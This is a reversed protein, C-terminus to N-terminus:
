DFSGHGYPFRRDLRVIDKRRDGSTSSKVAYDMIDQFASVKIYEIKKRKRKWDAKAAIGAFKLIHERKRGPKKIFAFVPGGSIGDINYDYSGNLECSGIPSPKAEAVHSSWGDLGVIYTGDENSDDSPYGMVYLFDINDFDGVINNTTIRFFRHLIAANIDDRFRSLSKTFDCIVIDTHDSENEKYFFYSDAEIYYTTYLLSGNKGIEGVDFIICINELDDLQNEVQHRTLIALKRGKYEIGTMSGRKTFPFMEGGPLILFGDRNDNPNAFYLAHCYEYTISSIGYRLVLLDNFHVIYPNVIGLERKYGWLRDIPMKTGYPTVFVRLAVPARRRM